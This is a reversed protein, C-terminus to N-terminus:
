SVLIVAKGMKLLPFQPGAVKLEDDLIVSNTFSLVHDWNLGNPGSGTDKAWLRSNMQYIYIVSGCHERIGSAERLWAQADPRKGTHLLSGGLLIPDSAQCLFMHSKPLLEAEM